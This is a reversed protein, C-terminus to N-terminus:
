LFDCKLETCLGSQRESSGLTSARAISYVRVDPMVLLIRFLSDAYGNMGCGEMDQVLLVGHSYQSGKKFFPYM